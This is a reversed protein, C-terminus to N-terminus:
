SPSGVVYTVLYTALGLLVVSWWLVLESRMWAKYRRFRYREPIWNTGAVLLIYIGLGEAIGGVVLMVTPLLYAPEAIEGPLYPLIRALYQPAMWLLVVPLNALVITSQLARHLRVRGRRVASAGVLLFCAM